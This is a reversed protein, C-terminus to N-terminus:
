GASPDPALTQGFGDRHYAAVLDVFRRVAFTKYKVPPTIAHIGGSRLSWDPLLRQLRGAMVADRVLYDPLVSYCHGVLLANMIAPGANMHLTRTANLTEQTAGKRFVWRTEGAIAANAIFAVRALDQPRLIAGTDLAPSGVVWEEFEGVKRVHNGSDKPWGVRFAIDYQREVPDLRDDTMHLDVTVQPNDRAFVAALPAIHQAGYDIPATINLAGQPRENGSRVMEYAARAQEIAAKCEEYFRQGTETVHLHRTNRLILAAGLEEELLLLQKSVVAKSVRLFSAAATITGAEVVTTFYVMRNFNASDAM